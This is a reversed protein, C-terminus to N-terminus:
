HLRWESPGFVCWLRHNFFSGVCRFQRDSRFIFEWQDNGVDSTMVEIRSERNESRM